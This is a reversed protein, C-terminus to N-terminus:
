SIDLTFKGSPKFESISKAFRTKEKITTQVTKVRAQGAKGAKGKNDVGIMKKNEILTHQLLKNQQEHKEKEIEENNWSIYFINPFFYKVLFGNNVLADHLYNVCDNINYLPSGIHFEPVEYFCSTNKIFASREIARNCKELIKNFTLKHSDSKRNLTKMVDNVHLM